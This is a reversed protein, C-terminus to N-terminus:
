VTILSRMISHFTLFTQNENVYANGWVDTFSKTKVHHSLFLPQSICFNISSRSLHIYFSTKAFSKLLHALNFTLINLIFVSRAFDCHLTCRFHHIWNIRVNQNVYSNCFLINRFIQSNRLTYCVFNQMVVMDKWLDTTVPHGLINFGSCLAEYQLLFM